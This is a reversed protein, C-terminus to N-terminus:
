LTLYDVLNPVSPLTERVGPLSYTYQCHIHKSREGKQKSVSFFFYNYSTVMAHLGRKIFVVGKEKNREVCVTEYSNLVCSKFFTVKFLSSLLYLLEM